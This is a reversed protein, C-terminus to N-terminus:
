SGSCQYAEHLPQGGISLEEIIQWQRAIHQKLKAIHRDAQPLHKHEREANM